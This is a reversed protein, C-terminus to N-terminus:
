HRRKHRTKSKFAHRGAGGRKLLNKEHASIPQKLRNKGSKAGGGYVTSPKSLRAALAEDGTLETRRVVERQICCLLSYLATVECSCLSRGCAVHLQVESEEQTEEAEGWIRHSCGSEWIPGADRRSEVRGGEGQNCSYRTPPRQDGSRLSASNTNSMSNCSM